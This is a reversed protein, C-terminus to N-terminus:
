GNPDEALIFVTDMAQEQIPMATRYADSKYWAQATEKDPFKIVIAQEYGHQGTLMETIQGASVFEGGAAKVTPGAICAYEQLKEPDKISAHVIVYASM